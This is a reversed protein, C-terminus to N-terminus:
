VRVAIKDFDDKIDNYVNREFDFTTRDLPASVVPVDIKSKHKLFFDKPNTYRSLLISVNIQHKNVSEALYHPLDVWIEKYKRKPKNYFRVLNKENIVEILPIINNKPADDIIRYEINSNIRETGAGRLIWIYEPDGIM